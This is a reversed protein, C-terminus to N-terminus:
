CWACPRFYLWLSQWQLQKDKGAADYSFSMTQTLSAAGTQAKVIKLRSVGDYAFEEYFVNSLDRADERSKLNGVTDYVYSLNQINTSFYQTSINTVRGLNDYSNITSVDNGAKFQKINGFADISEISQYVIGSFQDITNQQYGTNKYEFRVSQGTTVILSM